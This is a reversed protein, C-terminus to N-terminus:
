LSKYFTKLQDISTKHNSNLQPILNPKERLKSVIEVITSAPLSLPTDVKEQIEEASILSALEPDLESEDGSKGDSDDGSEGDSEDGSKGDSDDGSEAESDGASKKHQKLLEKLQDSLVTGIPSIHRDSKTSSKSSKKSMSVPSSPQEETAVSEVESAKKKSVSVPSTRVTLDPTLSKPSARKPTPPKPSVRKPSAKKPTPSKPSARKLTPSKSPLPPKPSARKPTPSKPASKKPSAKKPSVRKPTPSKPSARKPTPSKPSAKKPTPSKPSARNPTPSKPSAKKPSVRKPTPSKLSARKPTPSKPSARKPTPSKSPVPPKLSAKKPTPSKKSTSKKPTTHKVDSESSDSDSESSDSDSGSSSGSSSSGSSDSDGENESSDGDSASASSINPASDCMGIDVPVIENLLEKYNIKLSELLRTKFEDWSESVQLKRKDFYYIDPKSKDNKDEPLSSHTFYYKIPEEEEVGESDIYFCYKGYPHSFEVRQLEGTDKDYEVGENYLYGNPELLMEEIKTDVIDEDSNNNINTKLKGLRVYGFFPIKRFVDYTDKHIKYVGNLDESRDDVNLTIYNKYKFYNESYKQAKKTVKNKRIHTGDKKFDAWYKDVLNNQGAEADRRKNLDGQSRRTKYDTEFRKSYLEGKKTRPGYIKCKPEGKKCKRKGEANLESLGLDPDDGQHWLSGKSRGKILGQNTQLEFDTGEPFYDVGEMDFTKPGAELMYKESGPEGPILVKSLKKQYMMDM